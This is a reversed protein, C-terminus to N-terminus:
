KKFREYLTDIFAEITKVQDRLEPDKQMVDLKYLIRSVQADDPHVDPLLGAAVQVEQITTGYAKAIKKLTRMEPVRDDDNHWKAVTSPSIGANRALDADKWDKERNKMKLYDSFKNTMELM